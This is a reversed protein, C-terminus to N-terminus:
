LSLPHHRNSHCFLTGPSNRPYRVRPRGHVSALRQENLQHIKQRPSSESADDLSTTSVAVHLRKGAALLEPHHGKRLEGVALAQAIDFGTQRRLRGLEVVHAQPLLDFARRQGIGVLHSVPTDVGFEGLAQDLLCALEIRAVVKADLQLVRSVRQIRGGDVQTQQEKGPRQKAGGLGRHLHMRQQVQAAVNGAEDVDGVALQAVDIHEIDQHQLGPRDVDHISAIQVECPKVQQM